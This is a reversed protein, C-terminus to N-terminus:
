HQQCTVMGHRFDRGSWVEFVEMIGLHLHSDIMGPTLVRGKLDVVQTSDGKLANIEDNTGVTQIRDGKVAVAQAITNAQDVTLVKGNHLILDPTGQPAAQTKYQYLIDGAAFESRSGGDQGMRCGTALATIGLGTVTIFERRSLKISKDVQHCM